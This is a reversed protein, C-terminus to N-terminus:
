PEFSFRWLADRHEPLAYGIGIRPASRIHKAPVMRYDEIWLTQGQTLDWGNFSKDIALAACLKGPGNTLNSHAAGRLQRMTDVGELPFLARILVAEPVDPENTVVNFLYHFGYILYIYAHGPPGFMVANRATKGKFAHNASDEQGCYAETEVVMGSLLMGQYKRVLRKGLLERAVVLASRGYFIRPLIRLSGSDVDATRWSHWCRM